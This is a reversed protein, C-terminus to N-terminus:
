IGTTAFLAPLLNHSTLFCKKVLPISNMISLIELVQLIMALLLCTALVAITAGLVKEILCDNKKLQYLTYVVNLIKTTYRQVKAMFSTM